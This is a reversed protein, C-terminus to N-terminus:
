EILGKARAEALLKGPAREDELHFVSTAENAPTKGRTLGIYAGAPDDIPRAPIEAYHARSRQVVNAAALDDPDDDHLSCM